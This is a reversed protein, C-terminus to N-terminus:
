VNIIEVIEPKRFKDLLKKVRKEDNENKRQYYYSTGATKTITIAEFQRTNKNNFKIKKNKIAYFLNNTIGLFDCCENTTSFEKSHQTNTEKDTCTIVYPM